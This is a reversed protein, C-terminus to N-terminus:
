RLPAAFQLKANLAVGNPLARSSVDFRDLLELFATLRELGAKADEKSVGDHRAHYSALVEQRERLYAALPPFVMQLISGSNSTREPSRAAFRAVAAPSSGVVLYGGRWAFAPELGPPFETPCTLFKIETGDHIRSRLSMSGPKAQNQAFVVLTALSNLTNMLMLEPAPEAATPRIRVAALVHPFWGPDTSPPAAMAFGIEPGLSPLAERVVDQGLLAAGKQEISNQLLQRTPADMFESVGFMTGAFDISRTLAFFAGAPWRAALDNAPLPAKLWLKAAGPPLEGPRGEVAFTLECDERHSIFVGVCDLANWYRLFTNFAVLQAGKVLGAQKELLARYPRPNIWLSLIRGAPDLNPFHDKFISRAAPNDLRASVEQLITEQSTVILVTGARLYLTTSRQGVAKLYKRKGLSQEEVSKLEGSGKQLELLKDLLKALREADRAELMLLGQERDPTDVPGPSYALVIADGLIDDRLQVLTIQLNKQLFADIDRLKAMEPAALLEKGIRSALFQKAFPSALFSHAHGRLDEILLCLAMNEPVLRLLKDPGACARSATSVMILSAMLPAFCLRIARSRTPM